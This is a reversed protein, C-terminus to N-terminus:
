RWRGEGLKLKKIDILNKKSASVAPSVCVCHPWFLLTLMQLFYFLISPLSAAGVTAVSCPSILLYWWFCMPLCSPLWPWLVLVWQAWPQADLSPWICFYHCTWCPCACVVHLSDLPSRSLWARLEASKCITYRGMQSEKTGWAQSLSGDGIDTVNRRGGGVLLYWQRLVSMGKNGLLSCLSKM